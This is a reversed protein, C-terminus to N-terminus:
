PLRVAIIRGRTANTDVYLQGNSQKFRSSEFPGLVYTKNVSLTFTANGLGSRWFSGKEVTINIGNPSAATTNVLLVQKGDATYNLSHNATTNLAAWGNHSASSDAVAVTEPIVTRAALAGSALILLILVGAILNKLSM